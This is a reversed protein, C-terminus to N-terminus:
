FTWVMFLKHLPSGAQRQFRAFYKFDTGGPLMVNLDPLFRGKEALLVEM